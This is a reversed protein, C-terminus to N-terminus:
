RTPTSIALLDKPLKTFERPFAMWRAWKTWSPVVALQAKARMAEIARVSLMADIRNIPAIFRLDSEQTRSMLSALMSGGIGCRRYAPRVFLDELIVAHPTLRGIAWGLRAGTLPHMAHIGTAFGLPTRRVWEHWHLIEHSEILEEPPGLSRAFYWAEEFHSMFYGYSMTGCGRVGWKKSWTPCFFKIRETEDDYGVLDVAHTSVYPASDAAETIHGNAAEFWATTVGFAAQPFLGTSIARKADDISLLRQYVDARARAAITDLGNPEPSDDDLGRDGLEYPWAEDPIDGWGFAIRCGTVLFTGRVGPSRQELERARRNLYARVGFVKPKLRGRGEAV